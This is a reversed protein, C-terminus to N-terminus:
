KGVKPPSLPISSVDATSLPEEHADIRKRLKKEVEDPLYVLNGIWGESKQDFVLKGGIDFVIGNHVKGDVGSFRVSFMRMDAVSVVTNPATRELKEAPSRVGGTRLNMMDGLNAM